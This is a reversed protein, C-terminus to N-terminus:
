APGSRRVYRRIEFDETKTLVEELDFLHEFPPFFTDAPYDRPIWTLFIESCDILLSEYLRAGGIVFVTDGLGDLKHLADPTPIVDVADDELQSSVVINRRGPLPRGISEYTARGMLIPHGMTIKKFWKLDDPLHWPMGGDKGIARNQAMAVVAKLTLKASM